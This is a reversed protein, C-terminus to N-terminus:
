KSRKKRFYSIALIIVILSLPLFLFSGWNMVIFIGHGIAQIIILYLFVMVNDTSILKTWKFYLFTSFLISSFINLCACLVTHVTAIYMNHDFPFTIVSLIIGLISCLWFQHQKLLKM